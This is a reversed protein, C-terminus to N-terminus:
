QIQRNVRMAVPIGAPNALRLLDFIGLFIDLAFRIPTRQILELQLTSGEVNNEDGFWAKM